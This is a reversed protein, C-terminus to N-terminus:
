SITHIKRWNLFKIPFRPQSLSHRERREKLGSSLAGSLVSVLISNKILWVRNWRSYFPARRVLKKKGEATESRAVAKGEIEPFSPFSTYIPPGSALTSYNVGCLVEATGPPRNVRVSSRRPSSSNCRTLCGGASLSLILAISRIRWQEPDRPM